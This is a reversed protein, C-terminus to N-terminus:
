FTHSLSISGYGGTASDRFKSAGASVM